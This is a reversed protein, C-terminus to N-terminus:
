KNTFLFPWNDIEAGFYACTYIGLVCTLAVGIILIFDIIGQHKKYLLRLYTRPKM